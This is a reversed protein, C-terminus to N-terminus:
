KLLAFDTKIVDLQFKTSTRQNNLHDSHINSDRDITNIFNYKYVYTNVKQYLFIDAVNIYNINFKFKDNTYEVMSCIKNIGSRTIIYCAASYIEHTHNKSKLYENNWDTYLHELNNTYIKTLMLIDFQPANEIIEKINSRILNINDFSIDDECIMFYNGEMTKLANISKIHSLTCAIEYNNMDNNSWDTIKIKINGIKERMNENKGDIAQIRTNKINIENFIKDM